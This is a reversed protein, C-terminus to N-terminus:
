KGKENDQKTINTDYYTPPLYNVIPSLPRPDNKIGEQVEKNFQNCSLLSTLITILIIGGYSWFALRYADERQKKTKGQNNM